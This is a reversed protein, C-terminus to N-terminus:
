GRADLRRKRLARVAAACQRPPRELVSRVGHETHAVTVRANGLARALVRAREDGVARGGWMGGFLGPVAM